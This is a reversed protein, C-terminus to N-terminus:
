GGGKTHLPIRLPSWRDGTEGYRRGDRVTGGGMEKGRREWAGRGKRVGHESGGGKTYPRGNTARWARSRRANRGNTARGTGDGREAVGRTRAVGGMEKGRREWAGRGKRVGHESGSDKQTPAVVPRGSMWRCKKGGTKVASKGCTETTRGAARRMVVRLRGFARGDGGGAGTM